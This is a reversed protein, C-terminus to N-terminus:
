KEHSNTMSKINRKYKNSYDYKWCLACNGWNFVSLPFDEMVYYGYAQPQKNMIATCCVCDDKYVKLSDYLIPASTVSSQTIIYAALGYYEVFVKHKNEVYCDSTLKCVGYRIYTIAENKDNTGIKHIYSAQRTNSRNDIFDSGTNINCPKNEIYDRVCTEENNPKYQYNREIKLEKIYKYKM